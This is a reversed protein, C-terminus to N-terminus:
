RILVWAAWIYPSHYYKKRMTAQATFFAKDIAEGAFMQEYFLKMFEATETDPVKWLSMVINKVGAMKFSRQLGYVGESGEIDGLATECASLVVLKTNLLYLGSVEYATLIGDNANGTKQGCWSDNAGAFLLGSRILPDASERFSEGCSESKKAKNNNKSEPAPFFFGHTAIHLVQPSFFGTLAKVSDEKATFGELTYILFNKAKGEVAIKKIETATGPLYNFSIKESFDTTKQDNSTFNRDYRVGGILYLKKNRDLVDNHQAVISATGSVQVLQYKESLKLTSDVPLAAFAIRHLLGSPSFYVKSIGNLESELPKWILNYASQSTTNDSTIELGRTYFKNILGIDSGSSRLLSDLQKEEFLNIPIPAPSDKRLILARYFISDTENNGDFFHFSIFEIAAESTKLNDRITQWGPPKQLSNKFAASKKALEKELLGAKNELAKVLVDNNNDRRVYLQALRQRTNQWDSYIKILQKDGSEYITQRIQQASSLTLNRNLLAMEYPETADTAAKAFYFSQYEDCSGNINKLYLQKENESTFQFFKDLQNYKTIVAWKILSDARESEDLNWYVKALEDTNTILYPHDEELNKKWELRAKLFYSASKEYEKKKYYLEGLNNLNITLNNISEPLFQNYIENAELLLEEASKFENMNRYLAGLNNTTEAYEWKNDDNERIAKAELYLPLAKEYEGTYNNYLDALINCSFAYILTQNKPEFDSRIKKAELYYTEAKDFQGMDRYLNALAICTIAYKPSKGEPKSEKRIALAESLLLEAQEYQGLDSYLSGLNNCSQAYPEASSKDKRFLESRIKRNEIYITEASDSKGALHYSAAMANCIGAYESNFKGNISDTIRRAKQLFYIADNYNALLYNTIGASKCIRNYTITNLSDAELATITNLYFRLATANNKQKSYIDASDRYQQWSQAGVHRLLLLTCIIVYMLRRVM